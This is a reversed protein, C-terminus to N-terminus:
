RNQMNHIHWHAFTLDLKNTECGVSRGRLWALLCGVVVVEVTVTHLQRAFSSLNNGGQGSYCQGIGRTIDCRDLQHPM